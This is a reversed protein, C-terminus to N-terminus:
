DGLFLVKDLNELDEQIMRIKKNTKVRELILSNYAKLMRKRENFFERHKDETNM